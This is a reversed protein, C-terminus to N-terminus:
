CTRNESSRRLPGPRRASSRTQDPLSNGWWSPFYVQIAHISFYWIVALMLPLYMAFQRSQYSFSFLGATLLAAIAAVFTGAQRRQMPRLRSWAFILGLLPTTIFLLLVTLGLWGTEYWTDLLFNHLHAFQLNAVQMIEVEYRLNGMGVGCWQNAPPLSLANHWLESRFSTFALLIGQLSNEYEPLRSLFHRGHVLFGLGVILLASLMALSPKWARVLLVYLGTAVALALLAARGNSIIIYYLVLAFVGILIVKKFRQRDLAWFCILPLLWPLNDERLHLRPLFDPQGAEVLFRLYLMLLTILGMLGIARALKGPGAPLNLLALLTLPFVLSQYAFTLWKDLARISDQACVASLLYAIVLLAHLIFAVIYAWNQAIRSVWIERQYLALLGWVVYVGALLLYAARGGVEALPLVAPLLWGWGLFRVSSSREFNM